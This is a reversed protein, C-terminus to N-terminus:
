TWSSDSSDDLLPDSDGDALFDAVDDSRTWNENRALSNDAPSDYYNNIITQEAVPEASGDGWFSSSGHHGSLLHEIGQFLFGGAVVGAATTAVSGLFSGAGSNTPAANFVSGSRTPVQYNGAGPVGASNQGSDLTQAWPNGGALFSSGRQYAPANQSLSQV